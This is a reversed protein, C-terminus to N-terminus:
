NHGWWPSRLSFTQPWVVEVPVPPPTRCLRFRKSCVTAVRRVREAVLCFSPASLRELNLAIIPRDLRFRPEPHSKGTIPVGRGASARCLGGVRGCSPGLVSVDSSFTQYISPELPRLDRKDSVRRCGSSHAPTGVDAATEMGLTASALHPFTGSASTGRRQLAWASM